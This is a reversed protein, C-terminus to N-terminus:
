RPIRVRREKEGHHKRQTSLHHDEIEGRELRDKSTFCEGPIYWVVVSDQHVVSDQYEQQM